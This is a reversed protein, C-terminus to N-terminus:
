KTKTLIKFVENLIDVIPTKVEVEMFKLQHHNYKKDLDILKSRFYYDSLFSGLNKISFTQKFKFREM